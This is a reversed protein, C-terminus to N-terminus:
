RRRISVEITGSIAAAPPSRGWRMSSAKRTTTAQAVVMVTGTTPASNIKLRMIPGGAAARHTVSRGPAASSPDTTTARTM